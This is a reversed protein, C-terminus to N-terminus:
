GKAMLRQLYAPSRASGIQRDCHILALNALDFSGYIDHVLRATKLLADATLHSFELFSRVYVADTWLIQSLGAYIDSNLILPQFLRSVLPGFKHFLFGARRLCQDIDAFLPQNKYFPVFQTEVHLVLVSRLKETAHELVALESGQVDLKLFDIEQVEAVDDFRRTTLPQRDVIRGWDGFGHFHGLLELDPELLSTMGPSFCINLVADRGDGLAYPYFTMKPHPQRTLEEYMAASPEFGTLRYGGHNLIPQYIPQGDLPSAGVDVVHIDPTDPFLERFSFM